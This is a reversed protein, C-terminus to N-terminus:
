VEESELSELRNIDKYKRCNEVKAKWVMFGTFIAMFDFSKSAIETLTSTDSIGLRGSFAVLLFCTIVIFVVFLFSLMFMRDMFGRKRFFKVM